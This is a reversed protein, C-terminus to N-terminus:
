ATARREVTQEITRILLTLIANVPTPVGVRQGEDVVAGNIADIETRRGLLVDVTMSSLHHEGNALYTERCQAIPDDWLLTIGKRQAVASAEAIALKAIRWAEPVRAVDVNRTRCVSAIANVGVNIVLKSWVLENVDNSATTPMGAAVFAEVIRTLEPTVPGDLWGLYNAGTVTHAVRGPGLVSGGHGTVGAVVRHPAVIASIKEGNGVGNQMTLAVGDPRLLERVARAASETQYAKVAVIALEVQGV